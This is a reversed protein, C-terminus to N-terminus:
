GSLHLGRLFGLNINFLHSLFDIILCSDLECRFDFLTKLWFNSLLQHRLNVVLHFLFNQSLKGLIWGFRGNLLGFVLELRLKVVLYLSIEFFSHADLNLRLYLIINGLADSFSDSCLFFILIFNLILM